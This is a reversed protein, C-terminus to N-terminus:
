RDFRQEKWETQRTKDLFTWAVFRSIKQGQSMEVTKVDVAKVNKLTSYVGPLTTKKSILSTFWLCQDQFQVSESIMRKVFDEEGGECWLEARQGGFNLIPNNSKKLGLNNNKRKTGAQAEAASAHFPPNCMTLDFKEDKEIIGHFINKSSTQERCEIAGQLSPNNEIIKKASQVSVPDIDSGVFSWGYERHGIIPYVCNAGTGIDLVRVSKGVPFKGSNVSGLLDALYHIYDARGPIPPCLYNAPIDWYSVGYFHKLLAKNLMKVADPNAFDISEDGYPNVSVFSSLEPLAQILQKFDYRDRHLNREHLSTKETHIKKSKQAM